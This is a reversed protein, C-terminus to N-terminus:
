SNPQTQLFVMDHYRDSREMLEDHTGSEIIQGKDLVIIRDADRITSLRHAIVFSTRNKLLTSLSNQILRESETDLNSTAEDLILIEPNKLIARAIAIRQKQGGSLKGGGDGVISDYGKEFSMIFEHANAIKAAAIVDEKNPNDVAFAINNIINGDIPSINDFCNGSVSDQYKGDIFIKSPFIIKEKERNIIDKTLKM